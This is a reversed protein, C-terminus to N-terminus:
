LESLILIDLHKSLGVPLKGTKLFIETDILKQYVKILKEKEWLRVQQKLKSLQWPAMKSLDSVTSENALIVLLRLRKLLSYFIQEASMTSLLEHYLSYIYKNKGPTFSDLFQFYHSPLLFEQVTINKLMSFATKLLKKDEWLVLLITNTQANIFQVFEQKKANKSLLNEVVVARDEDFLTTSLLKEELDKIVLSRGDLTVVQFGETLGTLLRRSSSIDDGHLLYKM